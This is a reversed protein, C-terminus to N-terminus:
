LLEVIHNRVLGARHHDFRNLAFAANLKGRSLKKCANASQAIFSFHQQNEILDLATHAARSGEKCALVHTYLSVDNRHGLANRIPKRHARAKRAAARRCSENRTVM